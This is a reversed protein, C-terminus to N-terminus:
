FSVLDFSIFCLCVPVLWVAGARLAGIHTVAANHAKLKERFAYKGAVDLLVVVAGHTAVALATGAPNYKLDQATRRTPANRDRPPAATLPLDCIL